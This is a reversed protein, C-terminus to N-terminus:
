GQPVLAKAIEALLAPGHEAIYFHGGGYLKLKFDTGAHASWASLAEADVWQDSDGGCAWLSASITEHAQPRKYSELCAFDARLIPLVLQLLEPYQLMEASVGGLDCVAALLESDPMAALSRRLPLHAARVASVAVLHPPRGQASLRQAAAFALLGGFSHGFLAMPMESLASLAHAVPEIVADFSTLLPECFRSERGPLQIACLELWEPLTAAWPRFYSAGGGSHAFCILRRSIKPSTKITVVYPDRGGPTISSV